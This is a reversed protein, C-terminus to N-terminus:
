NVAALKYCRNQAIQGMFMQPLKLNQALPLCVCLRLGNTDISAKLRKTANVVIISLLM